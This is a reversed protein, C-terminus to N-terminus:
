GLKQIQLAGVSESYGWVSQGPHPFQLETLLLRLHTRHEIGHNIAQNIVTWAPFTYKESEEIFECPTDPSIQGALRLLETGSRQAMKLLQDISLQTWAMEEQWLTAGGLDRIYNGESRVWHVILPQIRGFFGPIEIALQTADLTACLAIIECNAWRNFEFQREIFTPM